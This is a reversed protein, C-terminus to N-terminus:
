CESYGCGYCKKCGEEYSLSIEGCSPCLDAKKPLLQMKAHGNGVYGNEALERTAPMEMQVVQRETEIKEKQYGIMGMHMALAKAVADPLSRVKNPGFGVSRTGGIGSLQDILIKVRERGSSRGDLKLFKSVLRGLAEAMGTLDSGAKGITVFVEFPNGTSDHNVTVFASGMPTDIKYTAGEVKAPRVWAVVEEAAEKPIVGSISEVVQKEVAMEEETPRYGCTVCM